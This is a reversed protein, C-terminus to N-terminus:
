STKREFNITIIGRKEIMATVMLEPNDLKLMSLLDPFQMESFKRGKRKKSTFEVIAILQGQPLVSIKWPRAWDKTAQSINIYGDEYM